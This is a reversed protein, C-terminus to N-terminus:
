EAGTLANIEPSQYVRVYDIEFVAPLMAEDFGMAGGWDGGLALNILLHFPRDFPWQRYSAATLLKSPNYEYVRAGDIMFCIKDPLWEIAYIHFDDTADQVTVGGNGKQTGNTHNYARTHISAHVRNEDYGVHEMIDIEGSDPWGGYAWDTPLMWIAPWTGLGAPLKARVEVIGYLWDGKGKTVLRASTYARGGMTEKRAEIILKGGDARANGGDTYYQLEHNGWGSGGTDYGWKAPDPPGTYDFEDSWVLEYTLSGEDYAFGRAKEEWRWAYPDPAEAAETQATRPAPLGTLCAILLILLINKM